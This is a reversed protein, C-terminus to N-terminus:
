LQLFERVQRTLEGTKIPKTTFATAGLGLARARDEEAGQTTIVIIPLHASDPQQRLAAILKLGDMVPMNIDSLILDYDTAAIMKLAEVGNGAEDVVVGPIRVLSFAILQRMTPSDEVVLIKKDNM